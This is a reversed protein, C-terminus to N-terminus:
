WCKMSTPGSVTQSFTTSPRSGLRSPNIQRPRARRSTASAPARKPREMSTSARTSDSPTACCCRTSITLCSQRPARTSMRSSGVATSEGRSASSSTAVARARAASPRARTKMECLSRSTSATASRM